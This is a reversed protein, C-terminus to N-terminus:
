ESPPATPTTSPASSWDLTPRAEGLREIALRRRDDGISDDGYGGALFQALALPELHAPPQVAPLRPRFGPARSWLRIWVTRVVDENGPDRLLADVLAPEYAPHNPPRWQTTWMATRGKAMPELELFVQWLPHADARSGAERLRAVGEQWLAWDEDKGLIGSGMAVVINRVGRAVEEDSAGITARRVWPEWAALAESRHAATWGAVIATLMAAVNVVVLAGRIWRTSRARLMTAVFAAAVIVVGAASGILAGIASSELRIAEAVLSARQDGLRGVRLIEAGTAAFALWAVVFVALFGALLSLHGALQAAPMSRVRDAALGVTAAAAGGLAVATWLPVRLLGAFSVQPDAVFALRLVLWSLLAPGVPAILLALSRALLRASRSAPLAEALSGAGHRRDGTVIAATWWGALIPSGLGIAAAVIALFEAVRLDRIVEPRWDRPASVVLLGVVVFALLIALAPVVGDALLRFEKRLLASLPSQSPLAALPLAARIM